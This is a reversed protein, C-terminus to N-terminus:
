QGLRIYWGGAQSRTASFKWAETAIEGPAAWVYPVQRGAQSFMLLRRNDLTM